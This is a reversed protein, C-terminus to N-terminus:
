VFPNASIMGPEAGPEAYYEAGFAAAYVEPDMALMGQVDEQSSHCELTARKRDLVSSVDVHWRIYAEPMGIPEGDDMPKDVEWGPDIGAERAEAFRRRCHLRGLLSGLLPLSM